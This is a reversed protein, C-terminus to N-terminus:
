LDSALPSAVVSMLGSALPSAVVANRAYQHGHIASVIPRVGARDGFSWRKVAVGRSTEGHVLDFARAFHHAGADRHAARERDRNRPARMLRDQPRNDM